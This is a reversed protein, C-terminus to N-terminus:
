RFVLKVLLSTDIGLQPLEASSDGPQDIAISIPENVLGFKFRPDGPHPFSYLVQFLLQGAEFLFCLHLFLQTHNEPTQLCKSGFDLLSQVRSIKLRTALDNPGQDSADFHILLLDTYDETDARHRKRGRRVTGGVIRGITPPTYVGTAEMALHTCGQEKLWDRMELLAGTKTAYTRLEKHSQSKQSPTLLCVKVTKKHVDLGACRQYLIEM